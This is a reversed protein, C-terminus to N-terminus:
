SNIYKRTLPTIFVQHMLIIQQFVSKLFYTMLLDIQFYHNITRALQDLKVYMIYVSPTVIRLFEYHIQQKWSIFINTLNHSHMSWESINHLLSNLYIVISNHMDAYNCLDTSYIPVHIEIESVNLPNHESTRSNISFM